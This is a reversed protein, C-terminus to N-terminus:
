DMLAFDEGFDFNSGGQGLIAAETINVHIQILLALLIEARNHSFLMDIFNWVRKVM